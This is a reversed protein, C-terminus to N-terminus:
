GAITHSNLEPDLEIVRAGLYKGTASFDYAVHAIGVQECAFCGNLLLQQFILRVKGDKQTEVKPNAYATPWLSVKPYKKAIIDFDEIKKMDLNSTLDVLEGQKDIMFYEESHDAALVDANVLYVSGYHKIVKFVGMKENLLALNQKCYPLAQMHSKSCDLYSKFSDSTECFGIIESSCREIDEEDLGGKFAELLVVSDVAYASFSLFSLYVWCLLQKRM